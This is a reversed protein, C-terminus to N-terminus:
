LSLSQFAVSTQVDFLRHYIVDQAIVLVISDDIVWSSKRAERMAMFQLILKKHTTTNGNGNWGKKLGKAAYM